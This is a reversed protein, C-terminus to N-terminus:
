SAPTASDQLLLAKGIAKILADNKFPKELVDIAGRKSVGLKLAMDANATMFIAPLAFGLEGIKNVLELGSMDPMCVDTVICGRIGPKAANLFDIPGSYTQVSLGRARLFGAMSNLIAPDDDVLHIIYKIDMFRAWTPQCSSGLWRTM